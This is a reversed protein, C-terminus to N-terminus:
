QSSRSRLWAVLMGPLGGRDLVLPLWAWSWSGPSPLNRAGVEM